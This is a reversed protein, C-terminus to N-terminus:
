GFWMKLDDIIKGIANFDAATMDEPKLKKLWDINRKTMAVIDVTSGKNHRKVAPQAAKLLKRLDKLVPPLAPDATGQGKQWTKVYRKGIDAAKKALKAYELGWDHGETLGAMEMLVRRKSM